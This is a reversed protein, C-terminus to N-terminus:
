RRVNSALLYSASSRYIRCWFHLRRWQPRKRPLQPRRPFSITGSVCYIVSVVPKTTSALPTTGSRAVLLSLYLM